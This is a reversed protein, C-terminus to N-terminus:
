NRGAHQGHDAEMPRDHVLVQATGTAPTDHVAVGAAGVVLAAGVAAIAALAWHQAVARKTHRAATRARRVVRRRVTAPM